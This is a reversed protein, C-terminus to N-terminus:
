TEEEVQPKEPTDTNITVLSIKNLVNKRTLELLDKAYNPRIAEIVEQLYKAQGVRHKLETREHVYIAYDTGYGVEVVPNKANTPQTVYHSGRLRGYDVPVLPASKADIKLGEQYLATALAEPYLKQYKKLERLVGKQGTMKM